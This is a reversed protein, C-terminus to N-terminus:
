HYGSIEKLYPIKSLIVTLIWSILFLGLTIGIYYILIQTGSGPLKTWWSKIFMFLVVHILYMGYSAKSISLVFKKIIKKTTIKKLEMSRFILFISSCLGIELFSIDLNSKLFLADNIYDLIALNDYKVKIVLCIILLILSLIITKNPSKINVNALYYGLVLYGIGGIFFRLDLFSSINFYRCGFYFISSLIFLIVFYKVDNLNRSNIFDNIFPLALYVGVILYFYWMYTDFFHKAIDYFLNSYMQHIYLISVIYIAIWFLFPITVRPFRKKYFDKISYQKKKLLLAGSIMLFIPVGSKGLKACIDVISVGLVEPKYWLMSIHFAIIGLIAFFRLNDLYEIRNKVNM